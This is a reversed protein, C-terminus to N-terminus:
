PMASSCDAQPVGGGTLGLSDSFQVQSRRDFDASKQRCSLVQCSYHLRKLWEEAEFGQHGVFASWAPGTLATLRRLRPWLGGKCRKSTLWV